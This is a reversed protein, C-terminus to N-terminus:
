QQAIVHSERELQKLTIEEKFKKLQGQGQGQGRGRGREQGQGQGQGQETNEEKMLMMDESCKQVKSKLRSYSDGICRKLNVDNLEAMIFLYFV